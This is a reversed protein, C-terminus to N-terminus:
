NGGIVKNFQNWNVVVAGLGIILQGILWSFKNKSNDITKIILLLHEATTYM